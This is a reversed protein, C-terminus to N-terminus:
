RARSRPSPTDVSESLFPAVVGGTSPVYTISQVANQLGQAQVAFGPRLAEASWPADAFPVARFWMQGSPPPYAHHAVLLRGSEPRFDPLGKSYRSRRFTTADGEAQPAM